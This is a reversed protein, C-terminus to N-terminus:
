YLGLVVLWSLAAERIYRGARIWGITLFSTTTDHSPTIAEAAVAVGAVGQRRCQELLRPLHFSQSVFVLSRKEPHAKLENKCSDPTKEARADIELQNDPFGQDHLYQVMVRSSVETNSVVLLPAKGAAVIARGADLREQLLPSVDGAPNVLTGFVIVAQATPALDLTSIIRSQAKFALVLWPLWFLVGVCGIIMIIRKFRVSSLVTKVVMSSM